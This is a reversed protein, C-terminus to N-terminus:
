SNCVPQSIFNIVAAIKNNAKNIQTTIKPNGTSAINFQLGPQLFSAGRHDTDRLDASLSPSHKALISDSSRTCYHVDQNNGVHSLWQSTRIAACSQSVSGHASQEFFTWEPTPPSMLHRRPIFRNSFRNYNLQCRHLVDVAHADRLDFDDPRTGSKEHVGVLRRASATGDLSLDDRFEDQRNLRDGFTDPLGNFRSGRMRNTNDGSLYVASQMQISATM